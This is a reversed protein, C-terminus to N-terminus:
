EQWIHKKCKRPLQVEAFTMMLFSIAVLIAIAACAKLLSALIQFDDERLSTNVEKSHHKLKTYVSCSSSVSIQEYKSGAFRHNFPEASLFYYMPALKIITFCCDSMCLVSMPLFGITLIDDNSIELLHAGKDVLRQYARTPFPPGEQVVGVSVGKTM